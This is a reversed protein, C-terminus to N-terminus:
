AFINVKNGMAHDSFVPPPSMPTAQLVQSSYQQAPSSNAPGIVGTTMPVQINQLLSQITNPQIYM